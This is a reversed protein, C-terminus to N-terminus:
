EFSVSKMNKLLTRYDNSTIWVLLRVIWSTKLSFNADTVWMSTLNNHFVIDGFNYVEFGMSRPIIQFNEFNNCIKILSNKMSQLKDKSLIFYTDGKDRDNKLLIWFRNCIINHNLSQSMMITRTKWNIRVLTDSTNNLKNLENVLTLIEEKIM